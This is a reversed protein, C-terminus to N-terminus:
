KWTFSERITRWPDVVDSNVPAALSLVAETGGKYIEYRFVELRSRKGTVSNPSSNQLFRIVVSTGAPLQLTGVRELRFAPEVCKLRPVDSAKASSVTPGAQASSWSLTMAFLNQIFSVRSGPGTRRAWGEPYRM